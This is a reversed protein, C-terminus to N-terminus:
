KLKAAAIFLNLSEENTSASNRELTNKAGPLISANIDSISYIRIYVYKKGNITIEEIYRPAYLNKIRTNVNSDQPLQRIDVAFRECTNIITRISARHPVRLKIGIVPTIATLIFDAIIEDADHSVIIASLTSRKGNFSIHYNELDNQVAVAQNFSVQDTLVHADTELTFWNRGLPVATAPKVLAPKNLLNILDAETEPAIRNIDVQAFLFGSTFLGAGIGYLITILFM